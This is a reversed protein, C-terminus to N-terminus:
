FHYSLSIYTQLMTNKLSFNYNDNTMNTFDIGMNISWNIGMYYHFGFGVKIDVFENHQIEYKENFGINKYGSGFKVYPSMSDCTQFEFLYNVGIRNYFMNDKEFGHTLDLELAQHADFFYGVYGNITQNTNKGNQLAIDFGFGVNGYWNQAFTNSVSLCLVLSLLWFIKKM